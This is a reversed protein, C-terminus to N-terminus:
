SIVTPRDQLFDADAPALTSLSQWSPRIPRLTIVEGMKIIELECVDEFEMDKPLYITQNNGNRFVSVTRM